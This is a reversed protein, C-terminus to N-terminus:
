CSPISAQCQFGEVYRHSTLGSTKLRSSGSSSTFRCFASWVRLPHTNNAPMARFWQFNAISDEARLGFATHLFQHIYFSVVEAAEEQCIQLRLDGVYLGGEWVGLEGGPTTSSFTSLIGNSSHHRNTGSVVACVAVQSCSKQVFTQTDGKKMGEGAWDPKWVWTVLFLTHWKIM